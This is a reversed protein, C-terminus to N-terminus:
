LYRRHIRYRNGNVMNNVNNHRHTHMGYGYMSYKVQSPGEQKGVLVVIITVLPFFLLGILGVVKAWTPLLNWNVVLLYLAYIFLVLSVLFIILFFGVSLGLVAAGSNNNTGDEYGERNQLYDKILDQNDNWGKIMNVMTLNSLNEM